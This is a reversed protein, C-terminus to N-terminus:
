QTNTTDGNPTNATDGDPTNATDGDPTNAAHAAGSAAVAGAALPAQQLDASYYDLRMHVDGNILHLQHPDVAEDRLKSLELNGYLRFLTMGHYNNDASPPIVVTREYFMTALALEEMGLEAHQVVLRQYLEEMKRIFTRPNFTKADEFIKAPQPFPPPDEKHNNSSVGNVTKTFKRPASWVGDGCVGRRHNSGSGGAYMLVKCRGCTHNKRTKLKGDVEGVQLPKNTLAVAKCHKKWFDESGSRSRYNGQKERVLIDAEVERLKELLARPVKLVMMKESYGNKLYSDNKDNVANNYHTTAVLWDFATMEYSKWKHFARLNMFVFFADKENRTFKLALPNIGSVISFIQQSRTLGRVEYPPLNPQFVVPTTSTSLVLQPAFFSAITRSGSAQIHLILVVGCIAILSFKISAQSGQPTASQSPAAMPQQPRQSDQLTAAKPMGPVTYRVRKAPPPELEYPLTSVVAPSLANAASSTSASPVAAGSPVAASSASASAIAASLTSAWPVVAGSTSGSPLAASSSSASAIAASLLSASPVAATSTSASAIATSSTSASAVAANSPSILPIAGSPAAASATGPTGTLMFANTAYETVEPSHSRDARTPVLVETNVNILDSALDTPGPSLTNGPSPPAIQHLLSPDIGLDTLIKHADLFGQSSLDLLKDDNVPEDKVHVMTQYSASSPCMKILGFFEKSDVTAFVPLPSVDAAPAYRPGKSRLAEILRNFLKACENVLTIHHSGYTSRSFKTANDRTLENRLNRRLVFDHCLGSMTELGSSFSRQLGNWGKHTGEIRSGDSPIDSRPRTLCGKRVHALQEHHTKSAAATWIGGHRDWKEFVEELRKEQDEQSRYVAPVRDKAPAKLIANRLDQAVAPRLANKTGGVVCIMYRMICHWVDLGMWTDPFVDLVANKIYCCNDAVVIEPYAVQHLDFRERFGLLM